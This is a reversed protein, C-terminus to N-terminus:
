PYRSGVKPPDLTPGSPHPYITFQQMINSSWGGIISQILGLVLADNSGAAAGETLYLVKTGHGPAELQVEQRGTWTCPSSVGAGGELSWLYEDALGAVTESDM